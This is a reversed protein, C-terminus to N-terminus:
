MKRKKEDGEFDGIYGKSNGGRTVEYRDVRGHRAGLEKKLSTSHHCSFFDHSTNFEPDLVHQKDM